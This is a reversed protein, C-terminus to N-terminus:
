DGEKEEDRLCSSFEARFPIELRRDNSPDGVSCVAFKLCYREKLRRQALVADVSMIPLADPSTLIVQNERIYDSLAAQACADKAAENSPAGFAIGVWFGLAIVFLFRWKTM